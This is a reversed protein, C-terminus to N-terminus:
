TRHSLGPGNAQGQFWSLLKQSFLGSVHPGVRDLVHFAEMWQLSVLDDGPTASLNIPACRFYLIRTSGNSRADTHEGMLEEIRVHLGTEELVERLLADSITEGHEVRGGPLVWKGGLGAPHDGERKQGLLVKREHVILASAVTVCTM